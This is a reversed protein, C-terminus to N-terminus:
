PNPTLTITEIRYLGEDEAVTFVASAAGLDATYSCDEARASLAGSPQPRAGPNTASMELSPTAIVAPSPM